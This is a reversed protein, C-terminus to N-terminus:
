VKDVFWVPCYKQENVRTVKDWKCNNNRSKKEEKHFHKNFWVSYFFCFM